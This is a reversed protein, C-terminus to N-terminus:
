PTGELPVQVRDHSRAGRHSRSYQYLLEAGIEAALLATIGGSDWPPCVEVIDFGVPHGDGVADLLALV